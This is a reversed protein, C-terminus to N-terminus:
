SSFSPFNSWTRGGRGSGPVAPSNEPVVGYPNPGRTGISNTEGHVRPPYTAESTNSWVEVTFNRSVQAAWRPLGKVQGFMVSQRRATEPSRVLAMSKAWGCGPGASMASGTFPVGGGIDGSPIFGRPSEKWGCAVSVSFREAPVTVAVMVNDPPGSPLATLRCTKGSLYRGNM